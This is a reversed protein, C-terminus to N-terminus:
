IGDYLGKDVMNKLAAAVPAADEKYTVGYWKESTPIVIAKEGKLKILNDVVVPLLFEEPLYPHLCPM